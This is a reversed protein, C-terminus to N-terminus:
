EEEPLPSPNAVTEDPLQAMPPGGWPRRVARAACGVPDPCFELRQAVGRVGEQAARRDLWQRAAGLSVHLLTSPGTGGNLRVGGGACLLNRIIARLRRADAESLSGICQMFREKSLTRIQDM